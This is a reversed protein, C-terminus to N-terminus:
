FMAQLESKKSVAWIGTEIKESEKMGGENWTRRPFYYDINGKDQENWKMLRIRKWKRDIEINNKQRAKGMERSTKWSIEKM